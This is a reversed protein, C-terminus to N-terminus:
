SSFTVHPELIKDIEEIVGQLTLAHDIQKMIANSDRRCEDLKHFKKILDQRLNVLSQIEEKKM